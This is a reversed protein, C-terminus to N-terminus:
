VYILNTEIPKKLLDMYFNTLMLDFYQTGDGIFAETEDTPYERKMLEPDKSHTIKYWHWYCQAATAGYMDHIKRYESPMLWSVPPSKSYEKHLWWGLFRSKFESLGEIGRFYEEAFFDVDTNGTTERFIKGVGDMVQQEAGLVLTNANLIETNPYFAVESWHINQKTGGRGSVKASATQVYMQAGRRGKMLTTSDIELFEKRDVNWKVMWSDLFGSVRNFLVITDKERASVIDADIIPIKGQESYIFDTTFIADILSSFGPQRFKLINERVGQLEEGYDNVMLDYYFNQTENFIFPVIEGSKNKILFNDEIFARYDIKLM